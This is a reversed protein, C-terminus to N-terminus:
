NSAISIEFESVVEFLEADKSNNGDPSIMFYVLYRYKGPRFILKRQSQFKAIMSDGTNLCEGTGQNTVNDIDLPTGSHHQWKGDRWSEVIGRFHGSSVGCIVKGAHNIIWYRPRGRAAPTWGPQLTVDARAPLYRVTRISRSGDRNIEVTIRIDRETGDASVSTPTMLMGTEPKKPNNHFGTFLTHKTRFNSFWDIPTLKYRDSSKKYHAQEEQKPEVLAYDWDGMSLHLRGRSPMGRINITLPPAARLVPPPSPPLPPLSAMYPCPLPPLDQGDTLCADVVPEFIQILPYLQPPQRTSAITAIVNNVRRSYSYNLLHVGNSADLPVLRRSGQGLFYRKESIPVSARQTPYWVSPIDNDETNVERLHISISFTSQPSTDLFGIRQHPYEEGNGHEYPLPTIEVVGEKISPDISAAKQQAVRLRDMCRQSWQAVNLEPARPLAAAQADQSSSDEFTQHNKCPAILFILLLSWAVKSSIIHIAYHCQRISQSQM